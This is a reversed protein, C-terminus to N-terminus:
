VRGVGWGGRGGRAGSCGAGLGPWNRARGRAVQSRTRRSRHLHQRGKDTWRVELRAPWAVGGFLRRSESDLMGASFGAGGVKKQHRFSCLFGISSSGITHCRGRGRSLAALGICGIRGRPARSELM